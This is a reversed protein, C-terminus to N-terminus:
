GFGFYKRGDSNVMAKALILSFSLPTSLLCILRITGWVELCRHRFFLISTFNDKSELFFM